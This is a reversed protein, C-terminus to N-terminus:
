SHVGLRYFLVLVLSVVAIALGFYLTSLADTWVLVHELFTIALVLIVISVVKAKLQDLDKVILWAPVNLDGIFLEYLSVAFIFLVSAILSVDLVEIFLVIVHNDHGHSAILSIVVEVALYVSWAWAAVSTLLLACMGVIVGLRSGAIVWKM